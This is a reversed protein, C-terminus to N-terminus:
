LMHIRRTPGDKTHYKCRRLREEMRERIDGAQMVRYVMRLGEYLMGFTTDLHVPALIAMFMLPSVQYQDRRMLMKIVETRVTNLKEEKARLGHTGQGYTMQKQTALAVYARKKWPIPAYRLKAITAKWKDLRKQEIDTLFAHKGDGVIAGGVLRFEDLHEM